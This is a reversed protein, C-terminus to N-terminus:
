LPEGREQIRRAALYQDSTDTFWYVTTDLGDLGLDAVYRILAEYSMTRKELQTRFSYAVLGARLRGGADAQGRLQMAAALGPAAKFLERRNM